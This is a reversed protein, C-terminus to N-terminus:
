FQSLVKIKTEEMFKSLMGECVKEALLKDIKIDNCTLKAKFMEFEQSRRAEFQFLPSRQQAASLLDVLRITVAQAFVLLQAEGETSLQICFIELEKNLEKITDDIKDFISGLIVHNVIYYNEYDLAGEALV